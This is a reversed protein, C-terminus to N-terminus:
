RHGATANDACPGAKAFSRSPLRFNGARNSRSSHFPRHRVLPISLLRNPQGPYLRSSRATDPLTFGPLSPTDGEWDGCLLGGLKSWIVSQRAGGADEDLDTLIDRAEHRLPLFIMQGCQVKERRRANRRPTFAPLPQVRVVARAAPGRRFVPPKPREREASGVAATHKHKQVPGDVLLRAEVEDLLSEDGGDPVNAAQAVVRFEALQSKPM